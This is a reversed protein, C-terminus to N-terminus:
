TGDTAATVVVLGNDIQVGDIAIIASEHGELKVSEWTPPKDGTTTKQNQNQQEQGQEQKWIRGTTDVSGSLIIPVPTGEATRVFRVTNIRKSHGQLAQHRTNPQHVSVYTNM